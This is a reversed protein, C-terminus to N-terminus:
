KDDLDIARRGPTPPDNRPPDKRDPFHVRVTATVKKAVREAVAEIEEDTISRRAFSAELRAIMDAHMTLGREQAAKYLQDYLNKPIRLSTRITETDKEM